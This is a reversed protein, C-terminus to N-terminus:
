QRTAALLQIASTVSTASSKISTGDALYRLATVSKVGSAKLADDLQPASGLISDTSARVTIWSGDACNIKTEVMASNNMSATATDFTDFRVYPQQAFAQADMGDGKIASMKCKDSEPNITTSRYSPGRQYYGQYFRITDDVLGNQNKADLSM